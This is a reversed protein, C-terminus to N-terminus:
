QSPRALVELMLPRLARVQPSSPWRLLVRSLARMDHRITASDVMRVDGIHATLVTCARDIDRAVAYALATRVAVRARARRAESPFLPMGSDLIEAAEGPRGLDYLCWGLITADPNPDMTTGLQPAHNEAGELLGAARDLASLCAYHDGALAHGQAERQAALGRVRVSALPDSQARQALEITHLADGAYLTVDAKRVFSYPELDRDGARSALRVAASTWWLAMRNDGAEQAMWGTFEAYRAALRILENRSEAPLGSALSRLTHTDAIVMPLVVGPGSLQGLARSQDFRLRFARLVAGPDAPAPATDLTLGLPHEPPSAAPIFQGTGDQTLILTWAEQDAPDEHDAPDSPHTATLLSRLEGDAGLAAECLRALQPNPPKQGSEVKSLYGKSYHIKEAFQGLSYGAAERRTRLEAGFRRPETMVGVM